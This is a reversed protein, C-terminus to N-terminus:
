FRLQVNYHIILAQLRGALPARMGIIVIGMATSIMNMGNRAIPTVAFMMDSPPIAIPIPAMTSAAM